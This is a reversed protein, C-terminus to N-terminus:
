VLQEDRKKNLSSKEVEELVSEIGDLFTQYRTSNRLSNGNSYSFMEALKNANLKYKKLLPRSNTKKLTFKKM